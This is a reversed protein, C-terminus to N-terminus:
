AEQFDPMLKRAAPWRWSLPACRSPRSITSALSTAPPPVSNKYFPHDPGALITKFGERGRAQGATAIKLENLREHDVM